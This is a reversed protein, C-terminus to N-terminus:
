LIPFLVTLGLGVSILHSLTVIQFNNEFLLLVAIILNRENVHFKKGPTLCHPM